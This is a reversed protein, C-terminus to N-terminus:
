RWSRRLRISSPKMNVLVIGVIVIAGGALQVPLVSEQLFIYGGIVGIVPVLNLYMTTLTVDLQRLAYIYLLYCGASCFVALFVVHLLAEPPIPGWQEYETLSLPILLITGIGNQYATLFLGSYPRRFSKNCLTYLSWTIMACVILMNGKFNESTWEVQGNATISLYTGALAVAMGSLQLVTLKTKYIIRDLMTALIPIASAILAANSATSLKVGTNEFYFYLTVGLFGAAMMRLLDRKDLRSSPERKRLLLFLLASAIAFRILAMTIPPIFDVTIKISVFSSGWLLVVIMMALHGNRM